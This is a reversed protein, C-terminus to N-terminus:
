PRRPTSARAVIEPEPEATLDVASEPENGELIGVLREVSRRGLEALAMRVCTLPPALYEALPVDHCGVVSVDDPVRVGLERAAALVGVAAGFSAVFLATPRDPADLLERGARCGGPEDFSTELIWRPDPAIDADALGACFGEQRRRGTDVHQPGAVQGIRRHGCDLPYRVAYRAGAEEDWLVRIDKPHGRRNILVSPPADVLRRVPRHESIAYLLGDVRGRLRKAQDGVRGGAILLLYDLERARAEAHEAITAYVVSALDPVVLGIATPRATKLMRAAPNPRYGIRDVVELVRTRTEDRVSLGPDGSLIRSVLSVHVGEISAVDRM